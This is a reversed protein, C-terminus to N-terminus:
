KETEMYQMSDDFYEHLFFFAIFPQRLQKLKPHLLFSVVTIGLNALLKIKKSVEFGNNIDVHLNHHDRSLKKKFLEFLNPSLFFAVRGYVTTCLDVIVQIM